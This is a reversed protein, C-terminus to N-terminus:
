YVRFETDTPFFTALYTYDGSAISANNEADYTQQDLGENEPLDERYGLWQSIGRATALDVNDLVTNTGSSDLVVSENVATVFTVGIEEDGNM